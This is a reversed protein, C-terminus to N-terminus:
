GQPPQFLHLVERDDNDVTNKDTNMSKLRLKGKDQAAILIVAKLFLLKDQCNWYDRLSLSAVGGNPWAIRCM